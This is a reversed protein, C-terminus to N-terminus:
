NYQSDEKQQILFNDFSPYLSITGIHEKQKLIISKATIVNVADSKTQCDAIFPTLFEVIIDKIQYKITQDKEENSNARVHIRLFETNDKPPLSL